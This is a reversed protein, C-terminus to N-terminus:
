QPSLALRGLILAVAEEAPVAQPCLNQRTQWLGAALSLNAEITEESVRGRIREAIREQATERLPQIAPDISGSQGGACLDLQALALVLLRRSRLYRWAISVELRSIM